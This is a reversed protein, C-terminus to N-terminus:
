YPKTQQNSAGEILLLRDGLRKVSKPTQPNAPSDKTSVPTIRLKSRQPDWRPAM